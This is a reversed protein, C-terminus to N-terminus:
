QLGLEITLCDILHELLSLLCCASDWVVVSAAHRRSINSFRLM